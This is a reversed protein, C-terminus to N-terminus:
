NTAADWKFYINVVGKAGRKLQVRLERSHSSFHVKLEAETPIGEIDVIQVNGKSPREGEVEAESVSLRGSLVKIFDLTITVQGLRVLLSPAARDLIRSGDCSRCHRGVEIPWIEKAYLGVM